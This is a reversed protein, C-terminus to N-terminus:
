PPAHVASAERLIVRKASSASVKWTGTTCRTSMGPKRMPVWASRAPVMRCPARARAETNWVVTGHHLMMTRLHKPTAPAAWM